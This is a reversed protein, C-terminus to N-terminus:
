MRCNQIFIGLWDAALNVLFQGILPWGHCFQFYKKQSYLDWDQAPVNRITGDPRIDLDSM